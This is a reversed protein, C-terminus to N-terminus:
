NSISCSNYLNYNCNCWGLSKSKNTYDLEMKIIFLQKNFWKWIWTRYFVNWLNYFVVYYRSFYATWISSWVAGWFNHNTKLM